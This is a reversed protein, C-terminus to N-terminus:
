SPASALFYRSASTLCSSSFLEKIFSLCHSSVPELISSSLSLCICSSPIFFGATFFCVGLTGEVGFVEFPSSYLTRLPSVISLIMFDSPYSPGSAWFYRSAKTLCSSSFLEKIFSLCHSSAPDFISSSPSSVKFSSPIVGAFAFGCGTVCCGTVCCGSLATLVSGSGVATGGVTSFLCFVFPCSFVSWFSGIFM